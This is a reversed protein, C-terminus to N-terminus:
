VLHITKNGKITSKKDLYRRKLSELHAPKSRNSYNPNLFFTGGGLNLMLGKKCFKSLCNNISNPSIGVARAAKDKESRNLRLENTSLDCKISFYIYLLIERKSLMGLIGITTIFFKSYGYFKDM